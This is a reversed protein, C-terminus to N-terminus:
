WQATLGEGWQATLGEGTVTMVCYRAQRQLGQERCLGVACAGHVAPSVRARRSRSAALLGAGFGLGEPSRVAGAASHGFGVFDDFLWM